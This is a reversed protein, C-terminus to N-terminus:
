DNTGESEQNNFEMDWREWCREKEWFHECHSFKGALLCEEWKPVKNYDAFQYWWAPCTFKRNETGPIFKKGQKWEDFTIGGFDELKLNKGEGIVIGPNVEYVRKIDERDIREKFEEYEYRFKNCGTGNCNRCIVASGDREAAGVYLGTGGCNKCKEKFEIISM